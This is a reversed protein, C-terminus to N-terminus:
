TEGCVGRGRRPRPLPGYIEDLADALEAYVSDPVVTERGPTGCVVLDIKALAALARAQPTIIV